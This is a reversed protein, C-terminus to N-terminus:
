RPTATNSPTRSPTPTGTPTSSPLPGAYSWSLVYAAGNPARANLVISLWRQGTPVTVTVRSLHGNSGCADANGGLQRWVPNGSADHVVPTGAAYYATTQGPCGAGVWLTTAFEANNLATSTACTDVTLNGPEADNYTDWPGLDLLWTQKVAVPVDLVPSISGGAAAATGTLVGGPGVRGAYTAGYAASWAEFADTTYNFWTSSASGSYGFAYGTIDYGTCGPALTVFPSRTPTQTSTGTTSSSPTSTTTPTMTPTMTGSPTNSPTQTQTASPTGTSSSSPTHSPTRTSTDTPRSTSSATQSYTPLNSPSVLAAYSWTLAYTMEPSPQLNGGVLAYHFRQTVNFTVSTGYNNTGCGSGGFGATASSCGFAAPTTGPCGTGVWLPAEFTASCTTITLPFGPTSRHAPTPPQLEPNIDCPQNQM